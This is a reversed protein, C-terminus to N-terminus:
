QRENSEILAIKLMRKGNQILSKVKKIDYNNLEAIEKYSKKELYFLRICDRQAPVLLELANELDVLKNEFEYNSDELINNSLLDTDFDVKLDKKDKRLIMLCHNRTVTLLWPKFNSINHKKLDETLKEFLSLVADKSDERNKLYKLCVGYVLHVYKNFIVGLADDALGKQYSIILEEDSKILEINKKRFFM